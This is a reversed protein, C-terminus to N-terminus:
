RGAWSGLAASFDNFAYFCTSKNVWYIYYTWFLNGLTCHLNPWAICFCGSQTLSAGHFNLRCKLLWLCLTDKENCPCTGVVTGNAEEYWLVIPGNEMSPEYLIWVNLMKMHQAVIYGCCHVPCWRTIVIYSVLLPSMSMPSVPNLLTEYTYYSVCTSFFRGRHTRKWHWPVVLM